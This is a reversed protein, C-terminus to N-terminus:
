WPAFFEVLTLAEDGLSKEFDASTLSVVDSANDAAVLTALAVSLAAGSLVSLRM